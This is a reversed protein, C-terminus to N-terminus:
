DTLRAGKRLNCRLHTWQLNSQEHTGGRALPIIHDLSRSMPDPAVLEPLIPLACLPCDGTWLADLDVPGVTSGRLLARRRHRMEARKERNAASWQRQWELRTERAALYAVRRTAAYTEGNRAYEEAKLIRRCPKCHQSLGDVSASRIVFNTLPQELNCRTCFKHGRTAAQVRAQERNRSAVLGPGQSRRSRAADNLCSKCYSQLGDGSAARRHFDTVPKTDACMGCFKADPTTPNTM